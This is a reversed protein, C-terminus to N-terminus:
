EIPESPITELGDIADSGEDGLFPDFEEQPEEIPEIEDPDFLPYYGDMGALSPLPRKSQPKTEPQSPQEELKVQLLTERDIHIKKYVDDSIVYFWDAFRANLRELRKKAEAVSEDYRDQKIQNSRQIRKIEAEREAVQEPTSEGELLSDPVRQIEPPPFSGEDFDAMIFLYRNATMKKQGSAEDLTESGTGALQGFRLVYNIGDKMLITLEGENSVLKVVNGEGYPSVTYAFRFGVSELVDHSEDIMELPESKRLAAAIFEPKRVVDVIKLDGLASAMTEVAQTNLERDSPIPEEYFKGGRFSWHRRLSWRKDHPAEPDFEVENIGRYSLNNRVADVYYENITLSRIDWPNIDLLNKEIWDEFKTSFRDISIEATFVPDSGSVRVYRVSENGELPKGIILDVLPQEDNGSLVIRMGVGDGLGLNGGAPDIVGYLEHQNGFDAQGTASEGESSAVSLVKLDILASAVAAMQDKADAPYNEHSPIGWVGNIEAIRFREIDNKTKNFRMIELSKVAMPDTFKEFLPKGLWDNDSVEPAGPSLVFALIALLLAVSVFISTTTTEKM